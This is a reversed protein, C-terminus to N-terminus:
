TIIERVCEWDVDETGEFGTEDTFSVDLVFHGNRVGKRWYTIGDDYYVYEGGNVLVIVTRAELSEKATIGTASPVANTGGSLDVLGSTYGATDLAVLINDIITSSSIACGSAEFNVSSSLSWTAHATITTINNNSVSFYNLHNWTNYTTIATLSNNEVNLHELLIWESRTTFTTLTNDSLDIHTLLVWEAFTDFTTLNNDSLDVYELDIMEIPLDVDNVSQNSAGVYDVNEAGYVTVTHPSSTYNHNFEIPSGTLNYETATDDGWDIYILGTGGLTLAFTGIKTTTLTLVIASVTTTAVTTTAVTTTALTTTETSPITDSDEMNGNADVLELYVTAGIHDKYIIHLIDGASMYFKSSKFINNKDM